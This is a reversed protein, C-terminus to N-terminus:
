PSDARGDGSADSVRIGIPTASNTCGWSYLGATQQFDTVQRGQDDRSTLVVSDSARMMRVRGRSDDYQCPAERPAHYSIDFATGATDQIMVHTPQLSERGQADYKNECHSRCHSNFRVSTRFCNPVPLVVFTAVEEQGLPAIPRDLVDYVYQGGPILNCQGHGCVTCIPWASSWVTTSIRSIPPDIYHHENRLWPLGSMVASGWHLCHAVVRPSLCSSTGAWYSAAISNTLGGVYNRNQCRGSRFRATRPETWWRRRIAGTDGIEGVAALNEHEFSVSRPRCGRGSRNSGIGSPALKNALWPSSSALAAGRSNRATAFPQSAWCAPPTRTFFAPYIGHSEQSDRRESLTERLDSHAPELPLHPVAAPPRRNSGDQGHGCCPWIAVSKM